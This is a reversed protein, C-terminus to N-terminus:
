PKSTVSMLLRDCVAMYVNFTQQSTQVFSQLISKFHSLGTQKM